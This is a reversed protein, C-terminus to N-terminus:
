LPQDTGWAIRCQQAGAVAATLLCLFIFLQYHNSHSLCNL